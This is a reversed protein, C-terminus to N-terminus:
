VTHSVKTPDQGLAKARGELKAISKHGRIGGGWHNRTAAFKEEYNVKIASVLKALEAKDESKVEGFALLSWLEAFILLALLAIGLRANSSITLSPHM